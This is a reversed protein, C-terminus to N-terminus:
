ITALLYGDRVRLNIIASEIVSCKARRVVLVASQPVPQKQLKPATTSIIFPASFLTSSATSRNPPIRFYPHLFRLGLFTWIIGCITFPFM